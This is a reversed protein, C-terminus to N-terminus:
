YRGKRAVWGYYGAAIKYCTEFKDRDKDGGHQDFAVGCNMEM